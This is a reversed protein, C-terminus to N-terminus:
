TSNIVLNNIQAHILLTLNNQSTATSVPVPERTALRQDLLGHGLDHLGVRRQIHQSLTDPLRQLEIGGLGSLGVEGRLVVSLEEGVLDDPLNM